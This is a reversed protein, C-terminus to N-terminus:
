GELVRMFFSRAMKASARAEVPTNAAAGQQSWSQQSSTVIGQQSHAVYPRWGSLNALFIGAHHIGAKASKLAKGLSTSAGHRIAHLREAAAAAV